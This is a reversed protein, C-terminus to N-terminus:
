FVYSIATDVKVFGKNAVLPSDALDDEFRRGVLRSSLIWQKGLARSAGLEMEAFAVGAVEHAPLRATAEDVDIGYVYDSLSSTAYRAGLLFQTNWNGIQWQQGVHAGFLVGHDNHWDMVASFQLLSASAYRRLRFGSSGFVSDREFLDEDQRTSDAPREDDDFEISLTGAAHIALLDLVWRDDHWLTAGVSLGDFGGRRGEAFWRGRRWAGSIFPSLGVEINDNEDPDLRERIATGGSLAVGVELYGGDELAASVISGNVDSDHRAADDAEALLPFGSSFLILIVGSTRGIMGNAHAMTNCIRMNMM